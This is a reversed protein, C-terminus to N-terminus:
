KEKYSRRTKIGYREDIEAIWNPIAPDFYTGCEQIRQKLLPLLAQNCIEGGYVNLQKQAHKIETRMKLNSIVMEYEGGFVYLWALLKCCFDDSLIKLGCQEATELMQKYLTMNM